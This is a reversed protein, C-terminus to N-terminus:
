KQIDYCSSALGWMTNSYWGQECQHIEERKLAQVAGMHL